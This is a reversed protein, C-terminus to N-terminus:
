EDNFWVYNYPSKGQYRYDADTRTELVDNPDAKKISFTLTPYTGSKIEAQVVKVFSDTKVLGLNVCGTSATSTNAKLAELIASEGNYIWLRNSASGAGMNYCVQYYGDEPVTFKFHYYTWNKPINATNVSWENNSFSLLNSVATGSTEYADNSTYYVVPTGYESQTLPTVTNYTPTQVVSVEHVFKGNGQTQGELTMLYDAFYTKEITNFSVSCSINGQISGIELKWDVYNWKGKANECDVEVRYAGKEPFSTASKGDVKLAYTVNEYVFSKDNGLNAYIICIFILILSIALLCTFKKRSNIKM